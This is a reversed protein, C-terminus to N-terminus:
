TRGVRRRGRRRSGLIDKHSFTVCEADRGAITKNSTDGVTVASRPSTRRAAPRAVGLFPNALAGASAPSQPARPVIGSSKDCRSPRPRADVFTQSDDSRRARQQRQRGARVDSRTTAAGSTYTIKFKQKSPTPSSSRSRRREVIRGGVAPTRPRRRAHEGELQQQRRMVAALLAASASRDSACAFRWFTSGFGPRM